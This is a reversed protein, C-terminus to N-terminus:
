GANTAQEELQLARPFLLNNELHIHQHLDQEFAELAHYLTQFSLCADAPVRYDQTAARLDRLLEGATDHESIMMRVPNAVTGFPPRPFTGGAQAARELSQIYPFLVMEEKFMHPQLDACLHQWLANVRALEPHRAGHAALVQALLTTLRAMERKTYVHHRELIHETMETLSTFQLEAPAGQPADVNAEALQKLVTEVEVGAAACAASLPRAGGCCYDIKLREFIRTAQPLELALERVTTNANLTM